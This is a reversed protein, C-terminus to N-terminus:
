RRVAATRAQAVMQAVQLHLTTAGYPDGGDPYDSRYGGTPANICQLHGDPGTLAATVSTGPPRLCVRVEELPQTPSFYTLDAVDVWVLLKGDGGPGVGWDGGLVYRRGDEFYASWTVAYHQLPVLGSFTTQVVFETRATTSQDGNRDPEDAAAAAVFALAAAVLAVTWIRRM